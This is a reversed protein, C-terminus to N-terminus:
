KTSYIRFAYQSYRWHIQVNNLITLVSIASCSILLTLFSSLFVLKLCRRSCSSLSIFVLVTRTFRPCKIHIIEKEHIYIKTQWQFFFRVNHLANRIWFNANVTSDKRQIIHMNTEVQIIHPFINFLFLFQDIRLINLFPLFLSFSLSLIFRNQLMIVTCFLLHYFVCMWM